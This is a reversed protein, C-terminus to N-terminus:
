FKFGTQLLNSMQAFSVPLQLKFPNAKLRCTPCSVEAKTRAGEKEVTEETPFSGVRIGPSQGDRNTNTAQPQTQSTQVLMSM